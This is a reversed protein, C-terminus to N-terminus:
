LINCTYKIDDNRRKLKENRKYFSDMHSLNFNKHIVEPFSQIVPPKTAKMLMLGGIETSQNGVSVNVVKDFQATENYPYMAMKFFGEDGWKSSWSNRCYWFPVDGKKSNDYQVNKATGWGVISVAHLGASNMSSKISDSFPITGDTKINAYDARDFYVGGNSETFKGNLFNNLVLYGGVVPGYKLIHHQVLNRYTEIPFDDKISFTSTGADLRFLYKKSAFTCGCDPVKRSLSESNIEFHKSSDRINCYKDNDCWSYDLCSEDAIGNKQVELALNAPKGGSCKGEGYCALAYTPSIAPFWDVAGGVILCDSMTSATSVAWCSGCGQQDLVPGILTKKMFTITNDDTSPISWSFNEHLKMTNRGPHMNYSHLDYHLTPGDNNNFNGPDSFFEKMVENNAISERSKKKNLSHVYKNDYIHAPDPLHDIDYKKLLEPPITSPYTYSPLIDAIALMMTQSSPIYHPLTQSFMVGTNLPPIIMFTSKGNKIKEADVQLNPKAYESMSDPILPKPKYKNIYTGMTSIEENYGFDERVKPNRILIQKRSSLYVEM